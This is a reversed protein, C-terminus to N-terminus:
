FTPAVIPAVHVKNLQDLSAYLLKLYTGGLDHVREMLSKVMGKDKVNESAYAIISHLHLNVFHIQTIVIGTEQWKKCESSGENDYCDGFVQRKMNALNSEMNQLFSKRAAANKKGTLLSTWFTSDDTIDLLKTKVASTKEKLIASSIM